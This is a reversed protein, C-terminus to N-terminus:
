SLQYESLDMIYQYFTQLRSKVINYFTLDTPDGTYDLWATTWYYNSTQGSLLISLLYAELGPTGDIAYFMGIVEDILAIPDSPNTLTETFAVVDIKITSGYTTYGNTCMRDTFQNRKPLTDSTIWLEHYAPEQYYAPWGAVNPPDGIDLQASSATLRIRDWCGYQGALNSADPFPILFERCMGVAFDAPSKIICGRNLVDFFHESKFLASLVPVIDYNSNRFIVALPQIINAEAAADIEYYVFWRYLKRCIFEAVENRSFIMNLLDDTENAGAAGSQGTILVNNYWFSFQKDATDHKTSDFYSVFGNASTTGAVLDNRWGTLVRAAAQVDDELYQPNGSADKGVTFLEQLERAYNENPATRTNKEGNLYKLMASNITIDKTLQKFNGLASQRLLVNYDYVYTSVTVTDSEVVFHNSWFLVMKERLSRPQNLMQSVWWSKLSKRRHSYTYTGVINTDAIGPWPQGAACLPDVLVNSYNNLPPAPATYAPHNILELLTDVSNNMGLGLFYNIDAAPSGFMTRKLLHKVEAVTWTGAYPTLGSMTRAVNSFDQRKRVPEEPQITIFDRRDM